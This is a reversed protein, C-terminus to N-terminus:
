NFIGLYEAKDIEYGMVTATAAVANNSSAVNFETLQDFVMFASPTLGQNNSQSVGVPAMFRLLSKYTGGGNTSYRLRGTSGLSAVANTCCVNLFAFTLIFVKGAPVIYVNNDSNTASDDENIFKATKFQEPLITRVNNGSTKFLEGTTQDRYYNTGVSSQYNDKVGVDAPKFVVVKGM